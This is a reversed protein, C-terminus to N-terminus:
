KSECQISGDIVEPGDPNSNSTSSPKAQADVMNLCAEDSYKKKAHYTFSYKETLTNTAGTSDIMKTTETCECTYTKQCSSLLLTTIIGATLTIVIKKM